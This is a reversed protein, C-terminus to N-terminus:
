KDAKRVAARLYYHIGIKQLDHNFVDYEYLKYFYLSSKNKNDLIFKKIKDISAFKRSMCLAAENNADFFVAEPVVTYGDDGLLSLPVERRSKISLDVAKLATSISSLMNKDPEVKM